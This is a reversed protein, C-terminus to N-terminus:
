SVYSIDYSVQATLAFVVRDNEDSGANEINSIMSISVNKYNNEDLGAIAPLNCVTLSQTLLDVIQELKRYGQFNNIERCYLDFTQSFRIGKGMPAGRSYIAVGTVKPPMQELYLGNTKTTGDMDVTGFGEQELYRLIRLTIM